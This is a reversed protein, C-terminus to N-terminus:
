KEKKFLGDFFWKKKENPHPLKKTNFSEDKAIDEFTSVIGSNDV